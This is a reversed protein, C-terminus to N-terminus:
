IECSLEKIKKEVVQYGIGWEFDFEKMLNYIFDVQEKQRINDWHFQMVVLSLIKALEKLHGAKTKMQLFELENELRKKEKIFKYPKLGIDSILSCDDELLAELKKIRVKNIGISIKRLKKSLNIRDKYGLELWLCAQWIDESYVSKYGLKKVIKSLKELYKSDYEKLLEVYEDFKDHYPKESLPM